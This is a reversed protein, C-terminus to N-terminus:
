AMNYEQESSLRPAHGALVVDKARQSAQHLLSPLATLTEEEEEDPDEV